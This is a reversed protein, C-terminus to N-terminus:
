RGVPLTLLPGGPQQRAFDLRSVQLLLMLTAKSAQDRDDVYYWYGRYKVAVYASKPPKHGGAVHAAFLGATLERADFVRGEADVTPKVLGCAFHEAPVEVGNSLYFLAQSTSRPVLRLEASPPTPSLLPDPVGGPITIIDYQRLGPQLNLLRELEAVEPSGEAGPNIRLVLQKERAVLVWTKGDAQPRYELGNKAAEVVAAATVREAPVPGSREKVREEAHVSLLERDQAAQMLAAIRAFRAFDSVVCSAPGSATVANPVGNFREVWIRLIVSAPWSTQALFILTNASIPTLIRRVAHGDDAPILTLTPRNAGGVMLDPLISTFTRFTNSSAPNPALFFPRAEAQGTLEYQAAIASIDLEALSENYRLRVLNLLLQEEYVRRVAENYCGHSRELVKPGFSCGGANLAM